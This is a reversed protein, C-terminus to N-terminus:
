RHSYAGSAKRRSVHGGSAKIAISKRSDNREKVSSNVVASAYHIGRTSLEAVARDLASFNPSGNLSLFPQQRSAISDTRKPAQPIAPPTTPDDEKLLSLREAASLSTSIRPAPTPSSSRAALLSNNWFSGLSTSPAQVRSHTNYQQQHEQQTIPDDEGYINRVANGLLSREAISSASLSKPLDRQQGSASQQELLGEGSAGGNTTFGASLFLSQSICM